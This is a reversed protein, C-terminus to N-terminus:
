IIIIEHSDIFGYRKILWSTILKYAESDGSATVHGLDTDEDSVVNFGDEDEGLVNLLEADLEEGAGSGQSENEGGSEGIEGQNVSRTSGAGGNDAGAREEHTGAGSPGSQEEHSIDNSIADWENWGIFVNINLLFTSMVTPSLALFITM